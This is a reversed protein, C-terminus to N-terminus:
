DRTRTRAPRLRQRDPNRPHSRQEVLLLSRRGYRLPGCADHCFHALALARRAARQWRHFRAHHRTRGPAFRHQIATRLRGCHSRDRHYRRGGTAPAAALFPQRRTRRPGGRGTRFGALQVRSTHRHPDIGAARRLHRSRHAHFRGADLHRRGPHASHLRGRPSRAEVSRCLPGAGPGGSQLLPVSVHPRRRRPRPIELPRVRELLEARGAFLAGRTQHRRRGQAVRRPIQRRQPAHAPRHPDGAGCGAPAGVGLGDSRSAAAHAAGSPVSAVGRGARLRLWFRGCGSTAPRGSRDDGAGPFADGALALAPGGATGLLVVVGAAAMGRGAHRGHTRGAFRLLLGTSFRHSVPVRRRAARGPPAAARLHVLRRLLGTRGGDLGSPTFAYGPWVLQLRTHRRAGPSLFSGDSYQRLDSERLVHIPGLSAVPRPGARRRRLHRPSSPRRPFGVPLRLRARVFRAPLLGGSGADLGSLLRYELAGRRPRLEASSHSITDRRLPGVLAPFAHRGRGANIYNIYTDVQM